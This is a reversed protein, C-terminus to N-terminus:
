LSLIHLPYQLLSLTNALLWHPHRPLLPFHSHSSCCSTSVPPPCRSPIVSIINERVSCVLALLPGEEGGGRARDAGGGHLYRQRTELRHPDLRPSRTTRPFIQPQASHSGNHRRAHHTAASCTVKDPWRLGSACCFPEDRAGVTSVPQRRSGDPWTSVTDQRRRASAWPLKGVEPQRDEWDPRRWWQESSTGGSCNSRCVQLLSFFFFFFTRGEGCVCLCLPGGPRNPRTPNAPESPTHTHPHAACGPVCRTGNPAVSACLPSAEPTGPVQCPRGPGDLAMGHTRGQCASGTATVIAEPGRPLRALVRWFLCIQQTLMMTPSLQFHWSSLQQSNFRQGCDSPQQCVFGMTERYAPHRGPESWHHSTQPQNCNSPNQVMRTAHQPSEKAM